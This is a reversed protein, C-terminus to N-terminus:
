KMFHSLSLPNTTQQKQGSLLAQLGAKRNKARKKSSANSTQKPQEVPTSIKKVKSQATKRRAAPGPHPMVIKTDRQCNDCHLIKCPGQLDETPKPTLNGSSKQSKAKRRQLSKRADLKLTAEQGPIMIIGCGGCVHQRQVDSLTIGHQQLLHGRQSMLHASTEPATAWLLHAADTLFDITGPLESVAM